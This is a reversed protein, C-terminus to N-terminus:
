ASVISSQEMLTTTQSLDDEEVRKHDLERQIRVFAMKTFRSLSSWFHRGAEHYQIREMLRVTCRRVDKRPHLLGLSIYFLGGHSEPTVTLLQCIEAPTQVAKEFALYIKASVDRGLKLTRLRDHHHHLDISTIPRSTYLLAMDQILSYYTRTNRWGEIRNINAAMERLRANDDSWVYGHGRVGFAGADAEEGGIYLASAGYVSEEFAAAIRVLKVIWDRWMSRIVGEGLRNAIGRLISDMFAADGTADQAQLSQMQATTAVSPNQQQFSTMGDTPIPQPTNSSIKMRGSPLDCLLDWWQPMNEFVPNTVGAVFGPVELLADIKTLDTYPFAHRTFGRLLGGSALACAALVSDAVDSSPMNHGLFVVRKQTLLANVLVIIPHTNPGGTTLHPHLVFPQPSTAHTVSFTQILKIISFDGVTEPLRATPVKVPISIGNYVIKSEFDHTNRPLGYRATPTLHGDSGQQGSSAADETEKQQIMQEFKEVFMDKATSAQLIHRELLSLRPMLSLDMNNISDYLAALTELTPNKFYEDLALLLLPKYIHLFPHRTCIAMSKCIAGRKVSTDHKTNVLNLVYILGQGEISAENLEADDEDIDGASGQNSIARSRRKSRGESGGDESQEDEPTDKHLYFVTWDQSRSHAQDPLMLEALMQEDSSIAAPYQYEMMSGKDIDFAAVLIFDVHTEDSDSPYQSQIRQGAQQSEMANNYMTYSSAKSKTSLAQASASRLSQSMNSDQSTGEQFYEGLFSHDGNLASESSQHSEFSGYSNLDSSFSSMPTQREAM